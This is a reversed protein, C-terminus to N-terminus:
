VENEKVDIKGVQIDVEQQGPLKNLATTAKNIDRAISRVNLRPTITPNDKELQEAQKKVLEMDALAKAVEARITIVEEEPLDGAKKEIKRLENLLSTADGGFKYLTEQISAM